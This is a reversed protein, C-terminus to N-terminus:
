FENQDWNTNIHQNLKVAPDFHRQQTHYDHNRHAQPEFATLDPVLCFFACCLHCCEFRLFRLVFSFASQFFQCTSSFFDFEKIHSELCLLRQARSTYWIIWFPSFFSGIELGVPVSPPPLLHFFDSSPTPPPPLPCARTLSLQHPPRPWPVVVVQSQFSLACKPPHPFPDFDSLTEALM